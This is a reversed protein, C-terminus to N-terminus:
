LCGQGRLLKNIKETCRKIRQTLTNPLMKKTEAISKITEGQSQRYYVELILKICGSQDFPLIEALTTLMNSIDDQAPQDIILEKEVSIGYKLIMKFQKDTIQGIKSEIAKRLEQHSNFTDNKLEKLLEIKDPTFVASPPSLSGLFTFTEDTLVFEKDRSKQRWHDNLKNSFIRWAWTSFKALGSFNDIGAEIGSITESIIDECDAESINELQNKWKRIEGLLPDPCFGNTKIKCQNCSPDNGAIRLCSHTCGGTGASHINPQYDNDLDIENRPETM